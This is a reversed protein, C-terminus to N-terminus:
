HDFMGNLQYATRWVFFWKFRIVENKLKENTHKCDELSAVTETKEKTMQEMIQMADEATQTAMFSHLTELERIKLTPKHKDKRLIRNENQSELLNASIHSNTKALQSIEKQLIFYSKALKEKEKRLAEKKLMMERRVAKAQGALTEKHSLWLDDLIKTLYNHLEQVESKSKSLTAFNSKLTEIKAALWAAEARLLEKEKLIEVVKARIQSTKFLFWM